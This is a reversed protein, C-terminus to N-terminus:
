KARVDQGNRILKVWEESYVPKKVKGGDYIYGMHYKAILQDLLSWWADRVTEVNRNCYNTLFEVALKPDTKYLELAAADIAPQTRVAYGEYGDQMKEIDKIMLSWRLDAIVNVSQVAWWYSDRTFDWHSGSKTNMTPAINSVSAYFPVFCTTSASGAGYWLVPAIEKPLGSRIQTICVHECNIVSITRQWDYSKGEFKLTGRYRRPNNWPGATISDGMYFETGEYHDRNLAFIDSMSVQKDVPVSFPLNREDFTAALSPAVRTFVRWIRRQCTQYSPAANCFDNRWSFPKNSSPDYWGKETAFDVIGSSYIFNDHDNWDIQDIVSCNAAVAIHGEPVRQAVWYAGPEKDGQEWLPGPGVVEFMWVEDPDAVSLQEGSDFYGYKVALDGMVQIAERATKAREMALFTLNTAEFWGNANSSGGRGGFTTEGIGVAEENIYGFHGLVYGYTHPVQPIQRGTPEGHVEMRQYGDTYQPMHLIEMMTGPAWDKAPIKEIQFSCSGCDNAHSCSTFGDSSAGQSVMITTCALTSWSLLGIIIAALIPVVACSRNRRLLM